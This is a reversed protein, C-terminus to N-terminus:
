TPNFVAQWYARLRSGRAADLRVAARAPFGAIRGDANPVHGHGCRDSRVCGSDHRCCKAGRDDTGRSRGRVDGVHRRRPQGGCQHGGRESDVRYRADTMPSQQGSLPGSTPAALQYFGLALSLGEGMDHLAGSKADDTTAATMGTAAKNTYFVFRAFLGQAWTAFVRQLSSDREATCTPDAVYAKADILAQKM